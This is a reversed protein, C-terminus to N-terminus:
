WLIWVFCAKGKLPVCPLSCGWARRSLPHTCKLLMQSHEPAGNISRSTFAILLSKVVWGISLPESLLLKGLVTPRCREMAWGSLGLLSSQLWWEQLVSHLLLWSATDTHMQTHQVHSQWFTFDEKLETEPSPASAKQPQTQQCREPHKELFTMQKPLYCPFSWPTM